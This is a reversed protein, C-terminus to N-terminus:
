YNLYLNEAAKLFKKDLVTIGYKRLLREDHASLKFKVLWVVQTGAKLYKNDLKAIRTLEHQQKKKISRLLVPGDFISPMGIGELDRLAPAGDQTEIIQITTLPESNNGSYDTVIFPTITGQCVKQCKQRDIEVEAAAFATCAISLSSDAYTYCLAQEESLCDDGNCEGSGPVDKCYENAGMCKNNSTQGLPCSEGPGPVFGEDICSAFATAFKADNKNICEQCPNSPTGGAGDCTIPLIRCILDDGFGFNGDASSPLGFDVCNEIASCPEPGSDTVVIVEGGDAGIVKTSIPTCFYVAVLLLLNLKKMYGKKQDPVYASPSPAIYAFIHPRHIKGFTPSQFIYM